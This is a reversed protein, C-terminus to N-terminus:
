YQGAQRQEHEEKMQALKDRERAQFGPDLFARQGSDEFGPRHNSPWWHHQPTIIRRLETGCTPCHHESYVEAMPHEVELKGHRPCRYLYLAM